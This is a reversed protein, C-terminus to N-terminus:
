AYLRPREVRRASATLVARTCDEPIEALLTDAWPTSPESGTVFGPSHRPVLAVLRNIAQRAGSRRTSTSAVPMRYRRMRCRRETRLACQEHRQKLRFRVGRM